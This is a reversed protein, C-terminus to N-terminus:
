VGGDAATPAEALVDFRLHSTPPGSVPAASVETLAKTVSNLLTRSIMLLAVFASPEFVFLVDPGSLPSTLRRLSFDSRRLMTVLM